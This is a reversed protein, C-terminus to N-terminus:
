SINDQELIITDDQPHRGPGSSPLRNGFCWHIGKDSTDTKARMTRRVKAANAGSSRGRSAGRRCGKLVLKAINARGGNKKSEVQTRSPGRCAYVGVVGVLGSALLGVTFSVSWCAVPVVWSNPKSEQLTQHKLLRLRLKAIEEEKCNTATVYRKSIRSGNTASAARSLASTKLLWGRLGAHRRSYQERTRFLM